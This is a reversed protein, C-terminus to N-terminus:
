SVVARYAPNETIALQLQIPAKMQVLDLMWFDSLTNSWFSPSQLATTLYNLMLLLRSCQHDQSLTTRDVTMEEDRIEM